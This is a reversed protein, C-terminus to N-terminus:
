RSSFLRVAVHFRNTLDNRTLVEIAALKHGSYVKFMGIILVPVLFGIPKNAIEAPFIQESSIMKM